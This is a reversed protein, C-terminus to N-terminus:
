QLESLGSSYIILNRTTTGSQLKFTVTGTASPKGTVKNFYLDTGGNSLHIDSIIVRSSLNYVMTTSATSFVKGQFVKVSTTAFQVGYETFENSNMAMSRARLVNSVVSEADSDVSQFNVVSVFVTATILALIGGIAIVLLLEVLTFARQKNTHM